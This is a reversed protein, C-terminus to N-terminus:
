AFVNVLGNGRQNDLERGPLSSTSEMVLIANDGRWRASSGEQRDGASQQFSEASVNTQGLEIGASAFMERLRPLASEINDRVEASASVFSATASNKDMTLSVEISGMHPPNLTIQASQKDSNALWVIKHGFDQAWDRSHLPTTIHAPTENERTQVPQFHHAQTAATAAPNTSQISERATHEVTDGTGPIAAKRADAFIAPKDEPLTAGVPAPQIKEDGAPLVTDPLDHTSLADMRQGSAPIEPHAAPTVTPPLPLLGLAGLLPEAENNEAAPADEFSDGGKEAGITGEALAPVLQTFLLSAFDQETAQEAVTRDNATTQAPQPPVSVATIPM